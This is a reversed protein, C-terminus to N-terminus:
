HVLGFSNFSNFNSLRQLLDGGWGGLGGVTVGLGDSHVDGHGVFDSCEKVVRHRYKVLKLPWILRSVPHPHEPSPM